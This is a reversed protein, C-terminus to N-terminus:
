IGDLGHALFPRSASRGARSSGVANAVARRCTLLLLIAAIAVPSIGIAIAYVLAERM